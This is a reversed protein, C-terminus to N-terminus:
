AHVVEYAAHIADAGGTEAINWSVSVILDKLQDADCSAALWDAVKDHIDRATSDRM